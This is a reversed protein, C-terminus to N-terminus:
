SVYRGNMFLAMKANVPSLIKFNSAANRKHDSILGRHRDEAGAHRLQAGLRASVARPAGELRAEPSEAGFLRVRGDLPDRVVLQRDANRLLRPRVLPAHGDRRGDHLRQGLLAEGDVDLFVGAFLGAEPVLVIFRGARFDHGFTYGNRLTDIVHYSFHIKIAVSANVASM